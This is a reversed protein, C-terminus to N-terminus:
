QSKSSGDFYTGEKSELIGNRKTDKKNDVENYFLYRKKMKQPSIRLGFRSRRYKGGNKRVATGSREEFPEFIGRM